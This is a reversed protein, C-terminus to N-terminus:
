YLYGVVEATNYLSRQFLLRQLQNTVLNVVIKCLYIIKPGRWSPLHDLGQYICQERLFFYRFPRTNLKSNMQDDRLLVESVNNGRVLIDCNVTDWLINTLFSKRGRKNKRSQLFSKRSFFSTVFSCVIKRLKKSYINERGRALIGHFSRM